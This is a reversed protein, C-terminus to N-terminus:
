YTYFQNDSDFFATDVWNIKYFSVKIKLYKSNEKFSIIKFPNKNSLQM